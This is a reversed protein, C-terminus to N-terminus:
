AREEMEEACAVILERSCAEDLAVNDLATRAQDFAQVNRAGYLFDSASYHELHVVPAAKPFEFLVFPGVHAPHLERAGSRIVRVMVNDQWSMREIFRLQEGMVAHGGIPERLANEIIFATLRPPNSHALVDRRSIRLMVRKEVEGPSMGTMLARIYGSTQLLGPLLMPAVDTIRTATREFEILTALEQHIGAAGSTLWNPEDIAHVMGLIRDRETGNIGAVGLYAAVEDSDPVSTGSEYRAIRVHAVGLKQALQRVSLKAKERCERLEAGLARAKPSGAASKAM